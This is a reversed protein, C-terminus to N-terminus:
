FKWTTMELKSLCDMKTMGSSYKASSVLGFRVVINQCLTLVAKMEGQRRDSYCLEDDRLEIGFYSTELGVSSV